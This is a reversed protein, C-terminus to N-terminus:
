FVFAALIVGLFLVPFVVRSWADMTCARALKDILRPDHWQLRYFVNATISQETSNIEDLDVM